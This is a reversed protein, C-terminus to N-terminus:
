SLMSCGACVLTELRAGCVALTGVWFAYWEVFDDACDGLFDVLDRKFAAKTVGADLQIDIYDALPAPDTDQIYEALKGCIIGYYPSIM